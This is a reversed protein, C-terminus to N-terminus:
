RLCHDLDQLLIWLTAGLLLHVEQKGNHSFYIYEARIVNLRMMERIHALLETIFFDRTALEYKM